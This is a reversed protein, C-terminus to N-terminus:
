GERSQRDAVLHEFRARFDADNMGAAAALSALKHPDSFDSPELRIMYRRACEYGEAEVDVRRQRMRGSSMDFLAEFPLPQLRSNEFSVIAAMEAAAPSRLFKVAGYGLDRTYHADFAGPDACRLEYGLNQDILTVQIGLQELREGLTDKLMRGFEIEGLRLHGHPDRQVKGYRGAPGASLVSSLGREGIAELLGEALVAVGHQSKQSKRKIIAGVLIDCLEDFTLSSNTFEEPIVTLTAGAAKGIGLALHGAARGMCIILYWRSCTRADEALNRVIQAGLQRATEFGFTPVSGPLPIDNDITKPVHAVRIAGKARAYVEKASFATDDGGITVLASVHLRAFVDLVNKLAEESKTPNARSTGLISGGRWHISKVDEITLSRRHDANGQALWKFGDVFGIVEIGRNVAEITVSSIVGNIGPAPGGGVLIGLKGPRIADNM